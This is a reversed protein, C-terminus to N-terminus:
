ISKGRFGGLPRTGGYSLRRGLGADFGAHCVFDRGEGENVLAGEAFPAPGLILRLGEVGVKVSGHQEDAGAGAGGAASGTGGQLLGALAGGRGVCSRRCPLKM